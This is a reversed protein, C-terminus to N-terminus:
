KNTNKSQLRNNSTAAKKWEAETPLSHLNDLSFVQSSPNGESTSNKNESAAKWEAETPLGHLDNISISKHSEIRKTQTNCGVLALFIMSTTLFLLKM